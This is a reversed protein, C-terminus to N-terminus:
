NWYTGNLGLISGIWLGFIFAIVSFVTAFLRPWGSQFRVTMFYYFAGGAAGALPVIILPKVMWYRGWEPKGAGASLLFAAILIFGIGAGLLM